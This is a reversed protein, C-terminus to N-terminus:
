AVEEGVEGGLFFCIGEIKKVFCRRSPHISIGVKHYIFPRALAMWREIAMVAAICGSSLGFFRCVVKGVCDWKNYQEFVEPPLYFKLLLTTLMGVLGIFNNTLLCRFVFFPPLLPLICNANNEM